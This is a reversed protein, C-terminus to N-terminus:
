LQQFKAAHVKKDSTDFCNGNSFLIKFSRTFQCMFYIELGVHKTFDKIWLMPLYISRVTRKTRVNAM